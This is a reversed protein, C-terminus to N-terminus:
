CSLPAAQEIVVWGDAPNPLKVEKNMSWFTL